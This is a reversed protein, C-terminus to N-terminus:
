GGHTRNFKSSNQLDRRGGHVLRIWMEEFTENFEGRWGSRGWDRLGVWGEGDCGRHSGHSNQLVGPSVKDGTFPLIHLGM